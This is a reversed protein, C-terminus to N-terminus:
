ANATAKSKMDFFVLFDTSIPRAGLQRLLTTIQGRHYTSHNVLHQLIQWLPYTYTEGKLNLYTISTQLFNETVGSLFDKWGKEIGAWHERIHSVTPFDVSSLLAKPSTGNCRSLWIWEAGMIHVATDRVSRFSNGMDKTFKEPKLQSLAELVREDAWRNYEFLTKIQETEM